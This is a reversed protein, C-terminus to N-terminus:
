SFSPAPHPSRVSVALKYQDSTCILDSAQSVVSTAMRSLVAWPRSLANTLVSFPNSAFFGADSSRDSINVPSEATHSPQRSRKMVSKTPSCLDDAPRSFFFCVVTSCMHLLRAHLSSLADGISGSETLLVTMWPVLFAATEFSRNKNSMRSSIRSPLARIRQEISLLLSNCVRVCSTITSKPITFSASIGKILVIMQLLSIVPLEPDHRKFIIEELQPDDKSKLWEPWDVARIGDFLMRKVSASDLLLTSSIWLVGADNQLQESFDSSEIAADDGGAGAKSEAAIKYECVLGLSQCRSCCPLLSDCRRKSKRCEHCSPRSWNKKYHVGATERKTNDVVSM